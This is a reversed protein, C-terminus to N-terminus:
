KDNEGDEPLSTQNRAEKQALYAKDADTTAKEFDYAYSVRVKITMPKKCATCDWTKTDGNRTLEDHYCADDIADHITNQDGCHPCIWNSFNIM